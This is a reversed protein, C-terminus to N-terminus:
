IGDWVIDNAMQAQLYVEAARGAEPEYIRIDELVERVSNITEGTNLILQTAQYDAWTFEDPSRDVVDDGPRFERLTPSTKKVIVEVGLEALAQKAGFVDGPISNLSNVFSVTVKRLNPLHRKKASVLRHLDEGIMESVPMVEYESIVLEELLPPLGDAYLNTSYMSVDKGSSLGDRHMYPQWMEPLRATASFHRLVCPYISTIGIKLSRLNKFQKLSTRAFKSLTHQGRSIHQQSIYFQPANIDLTELRECHPSLAELLDGVYPWYHNANVGDHNRTSPLVVQGRGRYARWADSEIMEGTCSWRFQQLSVLGKLLHELEVGTIMPDIMHVKTVNRLQLTGPGDLRVGFNQRFTLTSITSSKAYLEGLDEFIGSQPKSNWGDRDCTNGVHLSELKEWEQNAFTEGPNLELDSPWRLHALNLLPPFPGASHLVKSAAVVNNPRVCFTLSKVHEALDPRESLTRVLSKIRNCTDVRVTESNDLSFMFKVNLQHYLFPQFIARFTQSVLCLNKLGTQQGRCHINGRKCGCGQEFQCQWGLHGAIDIWIEAPVSLVPVMNLARPVNEFNIM